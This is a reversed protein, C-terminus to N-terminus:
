EEEGWGSGEVPSSRWCCRKPDSGRLPCSVEVAPSPYGLVMPGQPCSDGLGPAQETGLDGQSM